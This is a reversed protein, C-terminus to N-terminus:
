NAAPTSLATGMPPLLHFVQIRRNGEDSVYLLDDPSLNM